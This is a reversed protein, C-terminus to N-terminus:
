HDMYGLIEGPRAVDGTKKEIRALRGSFAAEVELTSKETEVELLAEGANVADGVSIIWRVIKIEEDATEGFQPM